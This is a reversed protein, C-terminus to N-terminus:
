PRQLLHSWLSQQTSLYAIAGPVRLEIETGSGVASRVDLLGRMIVARACARYGSTVPRKSVSGRRRTWGRATTRTEGHHTSVSTSVREHTQPIPRSPERAEPGGSRPSKSYGILIQERLKARALRVLATAERVDPSGSLAREVLTTITNDAFTTWWADVPLTSALAPDAAADFSRPATPAVPAINTGKVSCGSAAVALAIALHAHRTM